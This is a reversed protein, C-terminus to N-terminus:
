GYNAELIQTLQWRREAVGDFTACTATCSTDYVDFALNAGADAAYAADSAADASHYRLDGWAFSNAAAHAAVCENYANV